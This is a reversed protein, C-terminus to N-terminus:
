SKKKSENLQANVFREFTEFCDDTTDPDRWLWIVTKEAHWFRSREPEKKYKKILAEHAKKAAESTKFAWGTIGLENKERYVGFYTAEIAKADMLKDLGGDGLLFFKPNVTIARNKLGKLSEIDEPVEEPRCDMPLQKEPLTLGALLPYKRALREQETPEQAAASNNGAFLLVVVVAIALKLNIRKM